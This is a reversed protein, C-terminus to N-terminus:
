EDGGYNQTWDGNNITASDGEITQTTEETTTTTSTEIYIGSALVGLVGAFLLLSVVCVTACVISVRRTRRRDSREQELSALLLRNMALAQELQTESNIYDDKGM